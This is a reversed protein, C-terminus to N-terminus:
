LIRDRGKPFESMGLRVKKFSRLNVMKIIYFM